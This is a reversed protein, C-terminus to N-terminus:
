IGVIPQAELFRKKGSLLNLCLVFVYGCAFSTTIALAIERISNHFLAVGSAALAITVLLAFSVGYLHRAYAFNAELTLISLFFTLPGFLWLDGAVSLYKAGFLMHVVLGPFVAFLLSGGASIVAIAGYAFLITKKGARQGEHGAAYVSPLVSAIVAANLTLIVTGLTHLAGYFGTLEASTLSKVLFIDINGLLIMLLTFIFVHRMERRFNFKAYYKQQWDGGPAEATGGGPFYRKYFLIYSLLGVASGIVFSFLVASASPFFLVIIYGAVLKGAAGVIGALGVPLFHEWGTLASSYISTYIGGLSAIIIFILGYYGSLHLTLVIFPTLVLLLAFYILVGKNIKARAWRMFVRNSAFDKAKWFVPFFKLFLYTLMSAVAGTTLFLSNLSQFEGYGAVTLRRSIVFQFFYGFVGAILAGLSLIVSNKVLKDKLFLQRM